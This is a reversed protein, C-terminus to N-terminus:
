ATDLGVPYRCALAMGLGGGLATGHIAAVIPKPSAEYRAVVEPLGPAQPPKGFERIDAGAMFTRGEAALILIKAHPDALGEDLARLLGARVDRGLANVPPFNVLIAGSSGMPVYRVVSSM